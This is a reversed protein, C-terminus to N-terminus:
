DSTLNTDFSNLAHVAFAYLLSFGLHVENDVNKVLVLVSQTVTSTLLVNFLWVQHPIYLLGAIQLITQRM